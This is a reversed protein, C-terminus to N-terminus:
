FSSERVRPAVWYLLTAKNRVTIKM